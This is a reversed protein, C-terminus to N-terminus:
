FELVPLIVLQRPDYMSENVSLNSRWQELDNNLLTRLNDALKSAISEFSADAKALDDSLVVLTDLTGVQV